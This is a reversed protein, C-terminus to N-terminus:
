GLPLEKGVLWFLGLLIAALTMIWPRETRAKAGARLSRVLRWFTCALLLVASGDILANQATAVPAFIEPGL